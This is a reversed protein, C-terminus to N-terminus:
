RLARLIQAWVGRGTDKEPQGFAQPGLIGQALAAIERSAPAKPKAMVVPVGTQGARLVEEDYPLEWFIEHHVIRPIDAATITNVRNVHNLTVHLRDPEFGDAELMDLLFATDKISAMELSTLVLVRSAAEIATAVIDNFTGPTDLIVYDFLRSGMAILAKMQEATITGWESPHRPAALLYAGSQHRILAERFTARDLTDVRAALDAVTYKPEVDMMIAVDGFRTDMDILLVGMHTRQAIVAALNTSLTTKGIGGKAGFVTLVVGAAASTAQTLPTPHDPDGETDEPGALAVLVDRQQLPRPLLDRVGVQMVQRLISLDNLNTYAVITAQPAVERVARLTQIARDIPEQIGILVIDPTVEEVLASAEVGYGSDGVIAAQSGRLAAEVEALAKPDEDIVVVRRNRRM